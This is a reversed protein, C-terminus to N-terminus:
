GACKKPSNDGTRTSTTFGWISSIHTAPSMVEGRNHRAGNRLRAQCVAAGEAGFREREWEGGERACERDREREKEGERVTM